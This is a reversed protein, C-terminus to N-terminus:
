DEIVYIKDEILSYINGKESIIRIDLNWGQWQNEIIHEPVTPATVKVAPDIVPVPDLM